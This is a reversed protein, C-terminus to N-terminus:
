QNKKKFFSLINLVYEKINNASPYKKKQKKYQKIFFGGDIIFALKDM